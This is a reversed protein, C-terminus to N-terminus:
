SALPLVGVDDDHNGSYFGNIIVFIVYHVLFIFPKLYTRKGINRGRNHNGDPFQSSIISCDDHLERCCCYLWLSQSLLVCLPFIWGPIEGHLVHNDRYCIFSCGFIPLFLPLKVTHICCSWLIRQAKRSLFGTLFSINGLMLGVLVIALM